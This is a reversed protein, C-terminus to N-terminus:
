QIFTVKKIKGNEVEYIAVARLTQTGARVKEHDIIKNGIVIRKEIECYLNTVNKFFGEYGKRMAVKGKETLTNPFNYLEVDDSYTDMFADIDRANYANLQRQVIAEPSEKVISDVLLKKGNKFVLEISNLNKLADLPNNKLLLIDALKGKEISGWQQEKGFGVAPNITSAKIIEPVIMGFKQMAELEQLYSSAHFTGINGADTGSAINVGAKHLKILNIASISDATKVDDPIGNKRFLKIAPPMEAETMAEPDTISGYVFANAWALDQPDNNLKGAFVNYYGHMVILTPIYTVKKEKLKKAFDDPVVEDDISHVLIDAGAEVALQATKLETAHVALKLGNAHTQEAIYKVLAYNKEAPLNPGAIYWIKIFDPKLPLMKKFLADAEEINTIKIIPRDDGFQDRDVMSFLPGTVLINPSLIKKSISDRVVFNTMPGGVDIVSTVGLRLYRHLYDAANNLGFAKEKEYPIKKRLDVADPRTYLGGSQFFHIHADTMGPMLYKGSGDITQAGAIAKIKAAPGVQEIKDGNIIVTQAPLIKGTKVDVLNVNSIITQQAWLMGTIFLSCIFVFLKKM